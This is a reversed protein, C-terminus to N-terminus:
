SSCQGARSPSKSDSYTTVLEGGFWIAASQLGGSYAVVGVIVGDPNIDVAYGGLAEEGSDLESMTGNRWIFPRPAGEAPQAMGVVEGSQSIGYAESSAGGLTGVGAGGEVGGIGAQLDGIQQEMTQGLQEGAREASAEDITAAVDAELSFRNAM